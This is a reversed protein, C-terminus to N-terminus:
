DGGKYEYDTMKFQGNIKTFAYIHYDFLNLIYAFGVKEIESISAENLGIEIAEQPTIKKLTVSQVDNGFRIKVTKDVEAKQVATLFNKDKRSIDMAKIRSSKIGSITKNDGNLVAKKFKNWFNNFEQDVNSPASASSKETKAAEAAISVSAAFVLALVVPVIRKM